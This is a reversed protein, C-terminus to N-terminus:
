SIALVRLNRVYFTKYCQARTLVGVTAILQGTQILNGRVTNDVKIFKVKFAESFLGRDGM